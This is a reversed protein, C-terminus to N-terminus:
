LRCLDVYMIASLEHSSMSMDDDLTSSVPPKLADSRCPDNRYADDLQLHLTMTSGIHDADNPAYGCSSFM